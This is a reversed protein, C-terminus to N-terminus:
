IHLSVSFKSDQCWWPVTHVETLGNLKGKLDGEAENILEDDWEM